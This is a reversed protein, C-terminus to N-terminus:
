AGRRNAILADDGRREPSAHILHLRLSRGSDDCVAHLKSTLGGRSRGM